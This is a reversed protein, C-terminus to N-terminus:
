DCGLTTESIKWVHELGTEFGRGLRGRSTGWVKGLGVGLGGVFTGWVEGFIILDQTKRM